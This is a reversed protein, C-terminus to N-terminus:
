FIKIKSPVSFTLTKNLSLFITALYANDLCCATLIQASQIPFQGLDKVTFGKLVYKCNSTNIYFSGVAPLADRGFPPPFELEGWKAKCLFEACQDIKAALDLVFIGASTVM